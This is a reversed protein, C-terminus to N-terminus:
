MFSELTPKSVEHFPVFAMHLSLCSLQYNLPGSWSSPRVESPQNLFIFVTQNVYLYLPSILYGSRGGSGLVTTHM